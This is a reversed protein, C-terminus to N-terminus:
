NTAVLVVLTRGSALMHSAAKPSQLAGTLAIAKVKAV